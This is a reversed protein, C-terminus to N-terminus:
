HNIGGPRYLQLVIESKELSTSCIDLNPIKNNVQIDSGNSFGWEQICRDRLWRDSSYYSENKAVLM